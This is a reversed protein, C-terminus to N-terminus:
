GSKETERGRKRRSTEKERERERGRGKGRGKETESERERENETEKARERRREYTQKASGERQKPPITCRAPSGGIGKSPCTYAEALSQVREEASSDIEESLSRFREGRGGTATPVLPGGWSRNFRAGGRMTQSWGRQGQEEEVLTRYWRKPESGEWHKRTTRTKGKWAMTMTARKWWEADADTLSEREARDREEVEGKEEEEEEEKDDEKGENDEEKEVKDKENAQRKYCKCLLRRSTSAVERWRVVITHSAHSYIVFLLRHM